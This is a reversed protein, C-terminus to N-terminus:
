IVDEYSQQVIGTVYEFDDPNMSLYSDTGVRCRGAGVRSQEPVRGEIM